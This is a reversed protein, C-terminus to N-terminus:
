ILRGEEWGLKIIEIKSLDSTGLGYKRDAIEIHHPTPSLPREEGFYEKRRAMMIQLGVSDVPVPETGVLIGCYPWVFEPDYHHWGKGHFLPTLMVLINLRTKGKVVPLHWISGLPACGNDHYNDPDPVFMIYNKVLSGVGSWAHSRAPRANILATSNEFIPDGIVRRDSISTKEKPVGASLVGALIAQEVESTTPLVDWVNTKIGVVDDPKVVEKWADVPNDKEFLKAVAEDIMRRIVPGNPKGEATLANKDRILVVRTKNAASEAVIDDAYSPLGIALGVAACGAGKIFDRRTLDLKKDTM